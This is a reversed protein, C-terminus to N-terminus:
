FAHEPLVDNFRPALTRSEIFIAGRKQAGDYTLNVETQPGRWTFQQNLGRIMSGPTREIPGFLSQLHALIQNHTQSGQYHITVRAFQGDFAVFQLSEIAADGVKPLGHKLEYAQVHKGTEVQILDPVDALQAGWTIGYFGNPDNAMAGGLGSSPIFPCILLGIGVLGGLLRQHRFHMDAVNTMGRSM